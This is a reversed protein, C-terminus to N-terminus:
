EYRVGDFNIHPRKSILLRNKQIAEIIPDPQHTKETYDTVIYQSESSISEVGLTTPTRPIFVKSSTDDIKKINADWYMKPITWIYEMTGDPKQVMYLSPSAKQASMNFKFEIQTSPIHPSPIQLTCKATGDTLFKEWITPQSIETSFVYDFFVNRYAYGVESRKAIATPRKAVSTSRKSITGPRKTTSASRKAVSMTKRATPKSSTSKGQGKNNRMSNM